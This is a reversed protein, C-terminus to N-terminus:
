FKNNKEFFSDCWNLNNLYWNITLNLGNRFSFNPEWQLDNSILSNDIAYRFDHGPRDKVFTIQKRYNKDKPRHINLYDCIFNAVELNSYENCGGVCYTSGIAGRFAINLIADVHDEVFLWDRINHGNGYIPIAENKIARYIILPILKDPLQWPGFNNSCNSITIPFGYTSQWARVLHDSAAKSASYPSQPNYPSKESFKDGSEISGFVEDTSVHHFRFNKKRESSLNKYHMELVQLLYFTGLINSKVFIEPREISRDVHSEAALHFVIDPNIERIANSLLDKNSIDINILQHRYSSSLSLRKIENEIGTLDSAYGLKDINYIVSNSCKLLKRILCGGIFGAGGTILIRKYLNSVKIIM